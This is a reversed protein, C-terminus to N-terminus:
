PDQSHLHEGMALLPQKPVTFFFGVGNGRESEVWIAGGNVEVIKKVIALGIGTAELEDRPKLSQFIGFIRGFHKPDIGVGDDTVQFEWAEGRDQCAIGVQGSPKGLHKIANDLLNQIIQTLQVKDYFVRPLNEAFTISVHGPPSLTDVVEKVLAWSDVMEKNATARGVRSYDLIGELLGSMRKVRNQLLQLNERGDEELLSGYDEVIWEALSNIARLPAKLDHSVVHAFDQLDKNARELSNLLAERQREAEKRETVDRALALFLPEGGIEVMGLSVEVPFITGDRRRHRGDLRLSAGPELKNWVGEAPSKALNMEIEWVQMGLLEERSYGLSRCTQENVDVFRGKRDHVLLADTAQEVLTRFRNESNRLAEESQKRETIDMYAVQVAPEGEWDTKKALLDLWLTNKTNDIFRLEYRDPAPKGALRNKFTEKVKEKEGAPIHQLLDYHLPIQSQSELGIMKAFSDNSFLVKFDRHVVIGQISGEVLIRYRERAEVLATESASRIVAMALLNSVGQFFRVDDASYPRFVLSHAVLVGYPGSQGPIVVAMSSKVGADILFKGLSFRREQTVDEMIVPQNMRLTYGVMYTSKLSFETMSDTSFGVRSQVRLRPQDPYLRIVGCLQSGLAEAVMSALQDQLAALSIGSLAIRGLEALVSKQRERTELQQEYRKRESNDRVASLRLSKGGSHYSKSLVEAHLDRGNARAMIVEVRGGETALIARNVEPDQPFLILQMLDRQLIAKSEWGLMAAFAANCAQIRGNEHVVIGEFTGDFLDQFREESEKLARFQAARETLDRVAALRVEQGHFRYPKTYLEVPFQTGDKGLAELEVSQTGSELSSEPLTENPLGPMFETIGMGPIDQLARGFMTAFAPNADLIRGERSYIIIGEFTAQFLNKFQGESERLETEAAVQESVDISTIQIAPKDDFRIVRIRNEVWFIGGDRRQGQFRYSDPASEGAMRAAGFKRLRQREHPAALVDINEMALIAEPSPYGFINAYAKNVFISRQNRQIVIGQLSGEILDRFREESRILAQGAVYLGTIDESLSITGETTGDRGKLPLKIVRRFHPKDGRDELPIDTWATKESSDLVSSAMERLTEYTQPPAKLFDQVNGRIFQQPSKSLYDAMSKNVTLYRGQRDKVTLWFPLADLVSELLVSRQSPPEFGPSYLGLVAPEGMWRAAHQILRPPLVAKKDGSGADQPFEPPQAAQPERADSPIPISDPLVRGLAATPADGDFEGGLLTRFAANCFLIKRSSESFVVLPLDQLSELFGTSDSRLAALQGRLQNIEVDQKELRASFEKIQNESFDAGKSHKPKPLIQTM